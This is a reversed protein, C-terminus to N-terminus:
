EDHDDAEAAPGSAVLRELEARKVTRPATKAPSGLTELRMESALAFEDELNLVPWQRISKARNARTIFPLVSEPFLRALSFGLISTAGFLLTSPTM